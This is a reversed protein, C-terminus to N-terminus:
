LSAIFTQLKVYRPYYYEANVYNAKMELAELAKNLKNLNYM